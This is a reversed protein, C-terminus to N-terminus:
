RGEGIVNYVTAIKEHYDISNDLSKAQLYTHEVKRGWYEKDTLLKQIEIVFDNNSNCLQGCKENVIKPLGGVKTCVVPLGLSLAEVAALGYGEWNSTICLIKAKALSHYPNELFGILTINDELGLDKIHKECESRLEGDGIMIASINPMNKKLTHIIDIFRKPNKPFALRGLFAIEYSKKINTIGAVTKISQSDIPNGIIDTKVQLKDGFIYESMISESVTLIKYYKFSSIYYLFSNLGYKKIWPPNSHLHSIINKDKMLLSSIVSASADHAHIIDPKYEKIVRKVEKFCLKSMPYFPINFKKLTDRIPGDKSSYVMDINENNNFMYAIQCVVNEAGSFRDSQLLHLVKIKKNM